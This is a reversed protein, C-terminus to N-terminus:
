EAAAKTPGGSASESMLVQPSSEGCNIHPPRPSWCTRTFFCLRLVPFFLPWHTNRLLDGTPVRSGVSSEPLCGQSPLPKPKQGGPAKLQQSLADRAEARDQTGASCTSPSSLASPLPSHWPCMPQCHTEQVPNTLHPPSPHSNTPHQAMQGPGRPITLANQVHQRRSLHQM